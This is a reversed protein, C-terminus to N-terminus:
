DLDRPDVGQGYAIPGEGLAEERSVRLDSPEPIAQVPVIGLRDLSRLFSEPDTTEVGDVKMRDRLRKAVGEMYSAPEAAPAGEGRAMFAVVEEATGLYDDRGVKVRYLVPRTRM